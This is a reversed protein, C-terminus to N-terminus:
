CLSVDGVGGGGSDLLDAVDDVAVDGKVAFIVPIVILALRTPPQHTEILMLSSPCLPSGRAGFGRRKM